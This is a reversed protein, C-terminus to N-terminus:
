LPCRLHYVYKEGMRVVEIVVALLHAFHLRIRRQLRQQGCRAQAALSVFDRQEIRRKCRRLFAELLRQRAMPRSQNRHAFVIEIEQGLHTQQAIALQGAPHGRVARLAPTGAM